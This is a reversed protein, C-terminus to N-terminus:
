WEKMEISENDEEWKKVSEGRGDGEVVEEEM